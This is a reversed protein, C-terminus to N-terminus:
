TPWARRLQVGRVDCGRDTDSLAAPTSLTWADSLTWTDRLTWTDSLTCAAAYPPTRAGREKRMLRRAFSTQGLMQMLARLAWDSAQRRSLHSAASAVAAKNAAVGMGMKRRM